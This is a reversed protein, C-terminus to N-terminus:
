GAGEPLEGPDTACPTCYDTVISTEYDRHTIHVQVLTKHCSPCYGIMETHESPRVAQVDHWPLTRTEQNHYLKGANTVIDLNGVLDFFSPVEGGTRLFRFSDLFSDLPWAIGGHNITQM